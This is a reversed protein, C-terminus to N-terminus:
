FLNASISFLLLWNKCDFVSSKNFLLNYFSIFLLIIVFVFAISSRLKFSPDTSSSSYFLYISPSSFPLLFLVTLFFFPPNSTISTATLEVATGLNLEYIWLTSSLIYTLAWAESEIASIFSSSIESLSSEKLPYYVVLLGPTDPTYFLEM